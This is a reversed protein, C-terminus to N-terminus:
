QMVFNTFYLSDVVASGHLEEMTHRVEALAEERLAEKGERSLLQEQTQDSLLLILNSQLVPSHMELAHAGDADYTMVDISVQLFRAGSPSRFNVVLNDALTFYHPEGRSDGHGEDAHEAALEDDAESPPAMLFFWAAAGGGGLVVLGILIMPLLSKKKAKGTEEGSGDANTEEAM